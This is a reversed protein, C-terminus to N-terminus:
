PAGLERGLPTLAADALPAALKPEIARLGVLYRESPVLLYEAYGGDHESLGVWEPTECLQEVGTVCLDCRGCGWGGFVLVPDGRHVSTVGAGMEAVVGANERGLILPMRPLIPLEGDIVHLDSHCFGVGKVRVLLLGPGPSPTAVEEVVLPQGYAHLRAAKM